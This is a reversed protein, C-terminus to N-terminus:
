HVVAGCRDRRRTWGSLYTWEHRLERPEDQRLELCALGRFPEGGSAATKQRCRPVFVSLGAPAGRRRAIMKGNSTFTALSGQYTKCPPQCPVARLSARM